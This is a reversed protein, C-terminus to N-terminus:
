GHRCSFARVFVVARCAAGDKSGKCEAHEWRGVLGYHQGAFLRLHADTLLENDGVQM